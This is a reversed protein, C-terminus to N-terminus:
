RCCRNLRSITGSYFAFRSLLSYELLFTFRMDICTNERFLSWKDISSRLTTLGGCGRRRLPLIHALTSQFLRWCDLELQGSLEKKGGIAPPDIANAVLKNSVLTNCFVSQKIGREKGGGGVVCAAGSPAKSMILVCHKGFKEVTKSRNQNPKNKGKKDRKIREIEISGQAM